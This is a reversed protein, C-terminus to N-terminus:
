GIPTSGSGSSPGPQASPGSSISNGRQTDEDATAATARSASDSEAWEIFHKLVKMRHHEVTCTYKEWLFRALLTRLDSGEAPVSAQVPSAASESSEADLTEKMREHDAHTFHPHRSSRIQRRANGDNTPTAPASASVRTNWRRLAEEISSFYHSQHVLCSVDCELHVPFGNLAPALHEAVVTLDPVTGCFPCEKLETPKTM